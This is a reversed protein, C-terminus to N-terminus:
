HLAQLYQRIAKALDRGFARATQDNVEKGDANAYPFEITSAVRVGPLEGAWRGFPSGAKFNSKNNWAQGFPLNHESKYVLPGQPVRELIRSFRTVEEWIRQNEGGVFYIWENYTGRIAPCHLDIVLRLKGDSWKPLRERIAKIQPYISEGAYDRNHDRPKRNKGQDGDEVGDLDVMPVIFFAAHQSLWKGDDGDALIENMVGELVFSAMSECCHHRCTLVIRHDANGDIQGLLLAEVRRGKATTALTERRLRPSNRLPTLFAELDRQQYPFAFAFRVEEADAPVKFKFSADSVADAGAWKWTKGQDLSVAPGRVGIPNGVTFHVDLARGAAGRVRFNWYFWNGVTDRLDPRVDIREGALKEVVINGGAFDTDITVEAAAVTRLALLLVFMRLFKSDHIMTM